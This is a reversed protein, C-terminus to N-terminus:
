TTEDDGELYRKWFDLKELFLSTGHAVSSIPDEAVRTPLGTEEAIVKDIGRLLAGGGCLVM